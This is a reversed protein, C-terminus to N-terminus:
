DLVLTGASIVIREAVLQRAYRSYVPIHNAGTTLWYWRRSPLRIGRVLDELWRKKSIVVTVEGSEGKHVEIFAIRDNPSGYWIGYDWRPDNPYESRMAEDMDVSFVGADINDPLKIRNRNKRDVIAELGAVVHNAFPCGDFPIM